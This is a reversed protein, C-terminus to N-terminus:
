FNYFRYAPLSLSNRRWEELIFSPAENWWNFVNSHIGYNTLKDACSNGERYIHSVHCMMSKLLFECHRWRSLLKWPPKAKGLFIDVVTTSDCELWIVKWGNHFALDIALIVTYLEAFITTQIGFSASFCGLCDGKNDRFISGGGSLGPAGHAAGVTNIKIWGSAPPKWIIEIIRPAKNYHIDINFLKLITFEKIDNHACAKSFMGSM